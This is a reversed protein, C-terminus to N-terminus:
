KTLKPTVRLCLGAPTAAPCQRSFLGGGGQVSWEVFVCVCQCQSVCVLYAKQQSKRKQCNALDNLAVPSRHTQQFLKKASLTAPNTNM